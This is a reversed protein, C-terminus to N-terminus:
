KIGFFGKKAIFGHWKQNGDQYSGSIEGSANIGFACLPYNVSILKTTGDTGRFFSKCSPNVPSDLNNSTFGVAEGQSNIGTLYTIPVGDDWSPDIIGVDCTGDADRVFGKNVDDTDLYQGVVQGRANIGYANVSNPFTYNSCTLVSFTGSHVDRLFACDIEAGPTTCGEGQFYGVVQGKNNIGFAVTEDGRKFTTSQGKEWLFGGATDSGVIQGPDNIGLARRNAGVQTCGDKKSWVYAQYNGSDMHWGVVQGADNLGAAYTDVGDACDIPLFETVQASVPALPLLAFALALFTGFAYRSTM